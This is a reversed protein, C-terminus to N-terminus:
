LIGVRGDEPERAYVVFNFVAKQEEEYPERSWYRVYELFIKMWADQVIRVLDAAPTKLTLHDTKYLFFLSQLDEVTPAEGLRELVSQVAEGMHDSVRDGNYHNEPSSHGAVANWLSGFLPDQLIGGEEPSNIRWWGM